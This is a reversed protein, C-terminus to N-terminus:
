PIRVAKRGGAPVRVRYLVNGGILDAEEVLMVLEVPVHSAVVPVEGYILRAERQCYWILRGEVRHLEVGAPLARSSLVRLHQGAVYDGGCGGQIRLLPQGDDVGPGLAYNGRGRDGQIDPHEVAVCVVEDDGDGNDHRQDVVQQPESPALVWGHWRYDREEGRSFASRGTKQAIYAPHSHVVGTESCVYQVKCNLSVEDDVVSGRIGAKQVPEHGAERASLVGDLAGPIGSRAAGQEGGEEVAGSLLQCQLLFIVLSKLERM